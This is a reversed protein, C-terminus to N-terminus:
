RENEHMEEIWDIIGYFKGTDPYKLHKSGCCPCIIVEQKRIIEAKNDWYFEDPGLTHLVYYIEDRDCPVYCDHKERYKNVWHNLEAMTCTDHRKFWLTLVDYLSVEKM